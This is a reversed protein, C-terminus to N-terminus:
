AKFNSSLDIPGCHYNLPGPLRDNAQFFDWPGWIGNQPRCQEVVILDDHGSSLGVALRALLGEEKRV